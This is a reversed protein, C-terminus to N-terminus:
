ESSEDSDTIQDRLPGRCYPCRGDDEMITKFCMICIYKACGYCATYATKQTEHCYCVNCERLPHLLFARILHMSEDIDHCTYSAKKARSLIMHNMIDEPDDSDTSCQELLKSFYANNTDTRTMVVDSRGSNFLDVVEKAMNNEFMDGMDVFKLDPLVAKLRRCLVSKGHDDSLTQLQADSIHTQTM